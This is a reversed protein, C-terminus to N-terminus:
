QRAPAGARRDPAAEPRYGSQLPYPLPNALRGYEIRDRMDPPLGPSLSPDPLRQLGVFAPLPSDPGLEAAPLRVTTPSITARAM